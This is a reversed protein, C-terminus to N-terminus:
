MQPFKRKNESTKGCDKRPLFREPGALHTLSALDTGFSLQPSSHLAPLARLLPFSPARPQGPFYEFPAPPQLPNPHSLSWSPWREAGSELGELGVCQQTTLTLIKYMLVKGGREMRPLWGSCGAWGPRGNFGNESGIWGNLRWCGGRRGNWINLVESSHCPGSYTWSPQCLGIALVPMPALPKSWYFRSLQPMLNNPCSLPLNKM